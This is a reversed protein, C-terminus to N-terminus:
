ARSVKCTNTDLFAALAPPPYRTVPSPRAINAQTQDVPRPRVTTFHGMPLKVNLGVASYSSSLRNLFCLLGFRGRILTVISFSYM